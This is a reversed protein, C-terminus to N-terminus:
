RLEKEKLKLYGIYLVVITAALLVLTLLQKILDTAEGTVEGTFSMVFDSQHLYDFIKIWTGVYLLVYLTIGTISILLAFKRFTIYSLFIISSILAIAFMFPLFDVLSVVHYLESPSVMIFAPVFLKFLFLGLWFIGTFILFFLLGEFLLTFYKEQNSAPLTYYLGKPQHIKKGTFRCYYIFTILGGIFFFAKQLGMDGLGKFYLLAIWVLSVGGLSLLLNKKHEIWDARLLYSIRNLNFYTDM